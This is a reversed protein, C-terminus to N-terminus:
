FTRTVSMAWERPRGPQGLTMGWVGNLPRKNIFYEKDTLNTGSLAVSWHSSASQWTVRGDVLTRSPTSAEPSNVVDGTASEYTGHVTPTLTGGGGLHAVYTLAGSATKQPVIPVAEGLSAGGLTCNAGPAPSPVPNPVDVCNIAAGLDTVDYRNRGYSAALTLGSVPEAELEIEGGTIHARGLNVPAFYPQGTPDVTPITQQIDQYDSRFAAVNIRLRRNFWEGKFGLEYSDLTEPEFSVVQTPNFPRGNFGGARFGTAYSVYTMLKSTWRYDIVARPNNRSFSVETRTPPILDPVGPTFSLHRFTYDKDEKTYRIGATLNLRDTIHWTGDVFAAKNTANSTDDQTFDLSPVIWTLASLIVPGGNRSFADFYFLGATWDLRASFSSGHLRLEESFQHHDLDNQQFTENLPSADVDDSFTGSYDRYGSVSTLQLASTINWTVTGAFGYARLTNSNPSSTVGTVAAEPFNPGPGVHVLHDLNAFTSSASGTLFREDFPIGYIPIGVSANFAPLPNSPDNADSNVGILTQAAADSDDDTWDGVFDVTVADSAIWRLAARASKVREDGFSGLKCHGSPAQQRPLEPAAPNVIGGLDPHVCAFDLQDVYGDMERWQGALRLLLTKDILPVDIRGRIEHRDFNGATLELVGSGDGQPKQSILRVAGGISNKGFLTGQPGRLVEVRELDLLDFETGFETSHYVDDIYVGVGPEVVYQYDAQGVGRIYIEATKGSGSGGNNFTANPVSKAIDTFQVINRREITAADVVSVALPTEQLNQQRHQATVIVEELISGQDSASQALTVAPAITAVLFALGHRV